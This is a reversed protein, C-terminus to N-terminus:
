DYKINKDSIKKSAKSLKFDFAEFIKQNSSNCTVIISENPNLEPIECEVVGLVKNTNSLMTFDLHQQKTIENGSNLTIFHLQYYPGIERITTDIINLYKDYVHKERLSEEVNSYFSDIVGKKSLKEKEEQNTTTFRTM